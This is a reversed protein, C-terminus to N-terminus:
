AFRGHQRHFLHARTMLPGHVVAAGIFRTPVFDEGVHTAIAAVLAAGDDTPKSLLSCVAGPLLTGILAPHNQWAHGRGDDTYRGLLRERANIWTGLPFSFDGANTVITLGTEPIVEARAEAEGPTLNLVETLDNILDTMTTRMLISPNETELATM